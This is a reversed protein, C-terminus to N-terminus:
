KTKEMIDAFITVLVSQVRDVEFSAGFGKIRDLNASAIIEQTHADKCILTGKLIAGGIKGKMVQGLLVGSADSAGGNGMDITDIKVIFLYDYAVEALNDYLVKLKEATNIRGIGTIISLSDRQMLIQMVKKNYYDYDCANLMQYFVMRQAMVEEKAPEWLVIPEANKKMKAQAQKIQINMWEKSGYHEEQLKPKIVMNELPDNDQQAIYKEFTGLQEDISEEDSSYTVVEANSWDIQVIATKGKEKLFSFDGSTIVIEDKAFMTIAYLVSIAIILAKKM